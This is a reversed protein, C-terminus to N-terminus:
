VLLFTAEQELSITAGSSVTGQASRCYMKNTGGDSSLRSHKQM